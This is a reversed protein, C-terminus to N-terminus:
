VAEGRGTNNSLSQLYGILGKGCRQLIKISQANKAMGISGELSAVIFAASAKADIKGSLCGQRDAARLTSEIAGRWEDLLAEIRKRFGEDVPSMEQALNNIPCGLLVESENMERGVARIVAILASLPDPVDASLPDIWRRRLVPAFCEDVVAYGLVIKSPFHHYLAGKTVGTRTLIRSLSAAQFGYVRIERAAAALLISRTDTPTSPNPIATQPIVPIDM